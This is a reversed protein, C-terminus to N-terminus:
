SDYKRHFGSLKRRRKWRIDHMLNMYLNWDVAYTFMVFIFLFTSSDLLPKKVPRLHLFNTYKHILKVFLTLYIISFFIYLTVISLNSFTKKRNKFSIECWLATLVCFSTLVLLEKLFVLYDKPFYVIIASVSLEVSLTWTYAVLFKSRFKRCNDKERFYYFRTASLALISILELFPSFLIREVKDSGNYRIAAIWHNQEKELCFEDYTSEDIVLLNDRVFFDFEEEIIIYPSNFFNNVIEFKVNPYQQHKSSRFFKVVDNPFDSSYNQLCRHGGDKEEHIRENLKCCKLIVRTHNCVIFINEGNKSDVDVCFDNYITFNKITDNMENTYHFLRGYQNVVFNNSKFIEGVCYEFTLQKLNSKKATIEWKSSKRKLFIPNIEFTYNQTNQICNQSDVQYVENLSCCKKVTVSTGGIDVLTLLIWVFFLFKLM